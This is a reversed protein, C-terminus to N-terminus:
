NFKVAELSVYSDIFEPQVSIAKTYQEFLFEPFQWTLILVRKFNEVKEIFEEIDNNHFLTPNKKNIHSPLDSRELTGIIAINSQLNESNHLKNKNMYSLLQRKYITEHKEQANQYVVNEEVLRKLEKEQDSNVDKLKVIEMKYGEEKKKLTKIEVSKSRSEKAVDDLSRITKELAEIDRDKKELKTNLSIIQKSLDSIQKVLDVREKKLEQNDSKLKIMRNIDKTKPGEMEQDRINTVEEIEIDIKDSHHLDYLKIVAAPHSALLHGFAQEVPKFELLEMDEKLQEESVEKDSDIPWEKPFNITNSLYHKVTRKNTIRNLTAKNISFSGIHASPYLETYVHKTLKVDLNDFIWRIAKTFQEKNIEGM